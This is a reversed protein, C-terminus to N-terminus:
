DTYEFFLDTDDAFMLPDLVSSNPLGKVYLLFVRPGLISGQPVGCLISQTVAKLDPALSIYQKRNAPYSCFWALNIDRIDYVQLKKNLVSYNVNDFVKSLDVFVGLTHQNRRFSEYIQNALKVVAHETSNGTQFGFQKPCIKKETTLYKYLRNM